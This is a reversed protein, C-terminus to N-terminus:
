LWLLLFWAHAEGARLIDHVITREFAHKMLVERELWFGDMCFAVNDYRMGDDVEGLFTVGIMRWHRKGRECFRGDWLNYRWKKKGVGHHGVVEVFM